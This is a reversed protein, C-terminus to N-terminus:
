PLVGLHRQMRIPPLLLENLSAHCAVDPHSPIYVFSQLVNAGTLVKAFSPMCHLELVILYKWLHWTSYINRAPSVFVFMCCKLLNAKSLFLKVGSECIVRHAVCFANINAM